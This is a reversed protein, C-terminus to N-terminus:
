RRGLDTEAPRGEPMDAAIWREILAIEGAPLAKSLFPMRPLSTGLLRRILESAAANGPVLVVGNASGTIAGEYTDLRLAAAAADQSHCNVCRDDFIRAIDAWDPVDQAAAPGGGALILLAFIRLRAEPDARNVVARSRPGTYAMSCGWDSRERPVILTAHM